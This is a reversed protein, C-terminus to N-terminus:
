ARSLFIEIKRRRADVTVPFVNILGFYALTLCDIPNQVGHCPCRSLFLRPPATSQFRKLYSARFICSSTNKPVSSHRYILNFDILFQGLYEVFVPIIPLNTIAIYRYASVIFEYRFLRDSRTSWENIARNLHSFIECLCCPGSWQTSAWGM